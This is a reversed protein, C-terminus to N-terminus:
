CYFRSNFVYFFNSFSVQLEDTAQPTLSFSQKTQENANLSTAIQSIDKNLLQTTPIQTTYISSDAFWFAQVLFTSAFLIQVGFLVKSLTIM